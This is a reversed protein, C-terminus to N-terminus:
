RSGGAVLPPPRSQRFSGTGLMPRVRRRQRHLGPSGLRHGMVVAAVTRMSDPACVISDDGVPSTSVSRRLPDMGTRVHQPENLCISAATGARTQLHWTTRHCSTAVDVGCRCIRSSASAAGVFRREIARKTARGTRLNGADSGDDRARQWACEGVLRRGCGRPIRTAGHTASSLAAIMLISRASRVTSGLGNMSRDALASSM